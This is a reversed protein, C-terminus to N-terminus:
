STPLEYQRGNFLDRETQRRLALGKYFVGDLGKSQVLEAWELDARNWDSANIADVLNDGPQADDGKYYKPDFTRQRNFALSVLADFQKQNLPTTIVKNVLDIYVQSDRKFTEASEEKSIIMGEHPIPERKSGASHGVGIHWDGKGIKYARLAEGEYFRVIKDYDKGTTKVGRPLSEFAPEKPLESHDALAKWTMPGIKGDVTLLEKEQFDKVARETAPGFDGDIAGKYFGARTLLIQAAKVKEGKSGKSLTPYAPVEKVGQSEAKSEKGDKKPDLQIHGWDHNDWTGGWVIGTGLQDAAKQFVQAIPPYLKDDWTIKGQPNLAAFDIAGGGIHKSNRTWTVIKGPRSRGQAYLQNQYAQTRNGQVVEFDLRPDNGALEAAKEVLAKLQPKLDGLKKQSSANLQM